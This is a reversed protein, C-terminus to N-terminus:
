VTGLDISRGVRVKGAKKVPETQPNSDINNLLFYLPDALAKAATNTLQVFTRPLTSAKFRKNNINSPSSPARACHFM